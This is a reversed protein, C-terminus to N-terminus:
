PLLNAPLLDASFGEAFLLAQDTSSTQGEWTIGFGSLAFTLLLMASKGRILPAQRHIDGDQRLGASEM